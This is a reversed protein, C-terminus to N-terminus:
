LILWDPDPKYTVSMSQAYDKVDQALRKRTEEVRKLRQRRERTMNDLPIHLCWEIGATKHWGEIILIFETPDYYICDVYYPKDDGLYIDWDEPIDKDFYIDVVYTRFKPNTRFWVGLGVTYYKTPFFPTLLEYAFADLREVFQNVADGPFIM